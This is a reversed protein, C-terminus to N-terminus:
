ISAFLFIIEQRLVTFISKTIRRKIELLFNFCRENRICKPLSVSSLHHSPTPNRLHSLYVITTLSTLRLENLRKGQLLLTITQHSSLDECHWKSIDFDIVGVWNCWHFHLYFTFRKSSCTVDAILRTIIVFLNILFFHYFDRYVLHINALPHFYFVLFIIIGEGKGSMRYNTITQCTFYQCSSYPYIVFWASREETLYLTFISGWYYIIRSSYIKSSFKSTFTSPTTELNEVSFNKLVQSSM